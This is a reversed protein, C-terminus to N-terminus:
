TSDNLSKRQRRESLIKRHPYTFGILTVAKIGHRSSCPNPKSSGTQPTGLISDTPCTHANPPTDPFNTHLM